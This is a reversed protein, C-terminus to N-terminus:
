DKITLRLTRLQETWNVAHSNRRWRSYLVLLYDPTRLCKLRRHPKLLSFFLFFIPNERGEKGESKGREDSQDPVNCRMEEGEFVVSIRIKFDEPKAVFSRNTEVVAVSRECRSQCIMYGVERSEHRTMSRREALPYRM